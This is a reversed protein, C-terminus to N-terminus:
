TWNKQENETYKRNSNNDDTYESYNDDYQETSDAALAGGRGM